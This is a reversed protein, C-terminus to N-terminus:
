PEEAPISSRLKANERQLKAVEAQLTAEVQM